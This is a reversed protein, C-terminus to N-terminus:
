FIGPSSLRGRVVDDNGNNRYLKAFDAHLEARAPGELGLSHHVGASPDCFRPAGCGAVIVLGLTSRARMTTELKSTPMRSEQGPAQMEPCVWSVHATQM